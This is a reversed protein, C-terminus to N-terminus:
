KPPPKIAGPGLDPPRCGANYAAHNGDLDANVQVDGFYNGWQRYHIVSESSIVKFGSLEADMADVDGDGDSDSLVAPATGNVLFARLELDFGYVLSPYLNAASPYLNACRVDAPGDVVPGGDIRYRIPSSYIGPAVPQGVADDALILPSLLGFPVATGASVSSRHKDDSLEYTSWTLVGALNRRTAAPGPNFSADLVVGVGHNALLVLGPWDDNAGYGVGDTVEGGTAPGVRFTAASGDRAMGNFIPGGSGASDILASRLSADGVVDGLGVADVDVSFRTYVEEPPVHLCSLAPDAQITDFCGGPDWAVVALDAMTRPDDALIYTAADKLSTARIVLPWGGGLQTSPLGGGADAPLVIEVDFWPQAAGSMTPLCAVGLSMTIAGKCVSM